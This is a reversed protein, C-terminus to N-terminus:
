KNLGPQISIPVIEFDINVTLQPKCIRARTQTFRHIDKNLAIGHSKEGTNQQWLPTPVAHLVQSQRFEEQRELVKLM